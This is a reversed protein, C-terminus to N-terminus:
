GRSPEGTGSDSQGAGPADGDEAKRALLPRVSVRMHKVGGADGPMIAPQLDATGLRANHLPKRLRQKLELPRNEVSSTQVSYKNSRCQGFPNTHGVRWPFGRLPLKSVVTTLKLVRTM